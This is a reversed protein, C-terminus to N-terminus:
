KRHVYGFCHKFEHAVIEDPANEPMTIVCKDQRIIEACGIPSKAGGCNSMIGRVWLIRTEEVHNREVLDPIYSVPACGTMLAAWAMNWTFCKVIRLAM